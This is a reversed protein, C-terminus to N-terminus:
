LHCSFRRTFVKNELYM